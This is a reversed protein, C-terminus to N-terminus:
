LSSLNFILKKQGSFKTHQALVHLQVAHRIAFAFRTHNMTHMQSLDHRGAKSIAERRKMIKPDADTLSRHV